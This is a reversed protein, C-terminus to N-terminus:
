IGSRRLCMSYRPIMMHMMSSNRVIKCQSCSSEGLSVKYKLMAKVVQGLIMLANRLNSSSTLLGIVTLTVMYNTTKPFAYCNISTINSHTQTSRTYQITYVIRTVKSIKALANDQRSIESNRETSVM